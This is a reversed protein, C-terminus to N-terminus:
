NNIENNIFDAKEGNPLYYVTTGTVNVKVLGNIFEYNYIPHGTKIVGLERGDAGFVVLEYDNKKGCFVGGGDTVIFDSSLGKILTNGDIDLLDYPVPNYPPTDSTKSGLYFGEYANCRYIDGYGKDKLAFKIKGSKDLIYKKKDRVAYIEGDPMFEAYEFGRIYEGSGVRLIDNTGNSKNQLIVNTGFVTYVFYRNLDIKTSKIIEGKTNIIDIDGTDTYAAFLNNMFRDSGHYAYKPPTVRKMESNLFCVGKDTVAAYMGCGAEYIDADAGDAKVASGTKLNYLKRGFEEVLAYDGKINRVDYIISGSTVDDKNKNIIIEGKAGAGVSTLVSMYSENVPYVYGKEKSTFRNGFGDTYEPEYEGKLKDGEYSIDLYCRGDYDSKIYKEWKGIPYLEPNINVDSKDKLEYLRLFTCIAQERTYAGLPDFLNKNDGQMVGTHYVAYIDNRAWSAIKDGDGFVHPLYVGEKGKLTDTMLALTNHLMKAAEQRTIDRYPEFKGNGTGSVIGLSACYLIDEKFDDKIDSFAADKEGKKDIGWARVTNACLVCFEGRTITYGYGRMLFDPVLGITYAENVDRVAWDSPADYQYAAGWVSASLMTCCLLLAFIMKM